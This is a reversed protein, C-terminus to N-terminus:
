DVDKLKTETLEIHRRLALSVDGQDVCKMAASVITLQQDHGGKDAAKLANDLVEKSLGHRAHWEHIFYTWLESMHSRSVIDPLTKLALSPDREHALHAAALYALMGEHCFEYRGQDTETVIGTRLVFEFIEHRRGNTFLVLSMVTDVWSRPFIPLKEKLLSEFALFRLADTVDSASEVRRGKSIERQILIDLALGYLEFSTLPWENTAGGRRDILLGLLAANMPVKIFEEGPGDLLKAISEAREDGGNYRLQDVLEIVNDRDFMDIDYKTWNNLGSRHLFEPRSTVIVKLLPYESGIGELTHAIMERGRRKAMEDLGDLILVSPVRRIIAEAVAPSIEIGYISGWHRVLWEPFSSTSITNTGRSWARTIIPIHESGAIKKVLGGALTSKGSGAPGIILSYKGSPFTNGYPDVSCKTGGHPTLTQKVVRPASEYEYPFQRLSHSALKAAERIRRTLEPSFVTPWVTVHVYNESCVVEPEPANVNVSDRVASPIGAGEGEFYNILTMAGALAPNRPLSESELSSLKARDVAGPSTVWPGPSAIEIRDSFLRVHIHGNTDAYDRHVVANVLVERLCKVPYDYEIESRPQVGTVGERRGIRDRLFEFASDIQDKATGKLIRSDRSSTKDKGFYQVCKVYGTPVYTQPVAGFMLAATRTPIGKETLLGLRRLIEMNTFGSQLRDWEPRLSELYESVARTDIDLEDAAQNMYGVGLDLVPEDDPDPFFRRKIADRLSTVAEMPSRVWDAPREGLTLHELYVEPEMKVVFVRPEGKGNTSNVLRNAWTSGAARKTGCLVIPINQQGIFGTAHAITSQGVEVSGKHETKIGLVNLQNMLEEALKGDGEESVVYVRMM